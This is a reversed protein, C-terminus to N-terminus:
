DCFLGPTKVDFQIYLFIADREKSIFPFLSNVSFIWIILIDLLFKNFKLKEFKLFPKDILPKSEFRISVSTIIICLLISTYECVEKLLLKGIKNLFLHSWICVSIKFAKM